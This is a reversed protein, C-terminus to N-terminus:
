KFDIPKIQLLGVCAEGLGFHMSPVLENANFGV